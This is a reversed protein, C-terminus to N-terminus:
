CREEYIAQPAVVPAPGKLTQCLMAIGKHSCSCMSFPGGCTDLTCPPERTTSM